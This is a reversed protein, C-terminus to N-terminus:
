WKVLLLLPSPFSFHLNLLYKPPWTWLTRLCKSLPPSSFPPTRTWEWIELRLLQTSPPHRGGSLCLRWSSSSIYSVHPSSENQHASNLIVRFCAFSSEQLCSSPSRPWLYLDSDGCLILEYNFGFFPISLGSVSHLTLFSSPQPSFGPFCWRNLSLCLFLFM